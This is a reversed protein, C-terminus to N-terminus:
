NARCYWKESNISEDVWDGCEVLVDVKATNFATMAVPMRALTETFYDTGSDAKDGM